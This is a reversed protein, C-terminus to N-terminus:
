KKKQLTSLLKPHCLQGTTINCLQISMNTHSASEGPIQLLRARHKSSDSRGTGRCAGAWACTITGTAPLYRHHHGGRSPSLVSHKRKRKGLLDHSCSCWSHRSAGPSPLCPPPKNASDQLGWPSIPPCLFTLTKLVFRGQLRWLPISDGWLCCRAGLLTRM